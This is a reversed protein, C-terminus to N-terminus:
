WVFFKCFFEKPDCLFIWYGRRSSYTHAEYNKALLEKIAKNDHDIKSMAGNYASLKATFAPYDKPDFYFSGRGAAVDVTTIVELDYASAPLIDPLWGKEFVQAARAEGLNKYHDSRDLCGSLSVWLLALLAFKQALYKLNNGVSLYRPNIGSVIFQSCQQQCSGSGSANSRGIANAFEDARRDENHRKIWDQSNERADAVACATMTGAARSAQCNAVCHFYKDNYKTNDQ